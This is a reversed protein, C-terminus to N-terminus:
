QCTVAQLNETTVASFYSCIYSHANVCLCVEIDIDIDTAYVSIHLLTQKKVSKGAYHAGHKKMKVVRTPSFPM